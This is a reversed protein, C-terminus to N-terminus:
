YKEHIWLPKHLLAFAEKVSVVNACFLKNFLEFNNVRAMLYSTKKPIALPILKELKESSSVNVFIQSSKGIACKLMRLLAVSDLYVAEEVHVEGEKTGFLLYGKIEGLDDSYVIMQKQTALLEKKLMQFYQADREYYGEFHSTFKRYVEVLNKIDTSYSVNTITVRNLEEKKICYQKRYYVMQFGFPEYMRPHIAPIFTILHTHYAEDLIEIMLDRMYGRRRYDPLTSVGCLFGCILKKGHFNLVHHNLQLSSVIKNDKEVLICNGNDFINKFYYNLYNRDLTTYSNKWLQYLDSKDYVKAERIM